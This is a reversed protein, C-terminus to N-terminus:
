FNGFEVLWASSHGDAKVFKFKNGDRVAEVPTLDNKDDLCSIRAPVDPAIGKVEVEITGAPCKFASVILVKKAGDASTVGFLRVPKSGQTKVIRDGAAVATGFTKLGYYVKNYTGNGLMVGWIGDYRCGYFYAQDLCTQQLGILVQLTFIASNIGFLGTTPHVRKAMSEPSSKGWFDKGLAYIYHWEDIFLETDKFGYEDCLKRMHAPQEIVLDPEHYYTHWSVFDPTYGAARCKELLGRMFKEDFFCTDSPPCMAPGGFKLNPFRTKLRKLTYVFFDFFREYNLKPDPNQSKVIWSGGPRDNPENWLEWYRMRDSWRYGDAWGETYHRIIGELAGVYKEWDEPEVSNYYRPNVDGKRRGNVSEISTGMRYLIDLDLLHITRDLIEDTPAFFYNSPDSPDKNQLPFVFHTDCIRQGANVLAWDHTRAAYLHLPELIKQAKASYSGTLQGGFSASHLAPRVKGVVQTFDAFLEEGCAQGACVAMLALAVTTKKTTMMM